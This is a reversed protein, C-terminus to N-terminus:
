EGTKKPVKEINEDRTLSMDKQKVHALYVGSKIMIIQIM